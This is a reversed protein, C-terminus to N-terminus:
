KIRYFGKTFATFAIFVTSATFDSGFKLHLVVQVVHDQLREVGLLRVGDEGLLPLRGRPEGLEDLVGRPPREDVAEGLVVGVAEHEVEGDLEDRVGAVLSLDCGYGGRRLLNTLTNIYLTVWRITGM